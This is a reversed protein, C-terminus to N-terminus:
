SARGVKAQSSKSLVELLDAVISVRRGEEVDGDVTGLM